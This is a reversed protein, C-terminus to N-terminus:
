KIVFIDVIRNEVIIFFCKKLDWEIGGFVWVGDVWRGKYYKRKGFKSEDIEVVIGM